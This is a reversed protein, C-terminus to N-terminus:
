PRMLPGATGGYGESWCVAIMICYIMKSFRYELMIRIISTGPLEKKERKTRKKKKGKLKIEEVRPPSEM